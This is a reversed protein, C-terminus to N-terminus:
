ALAPVKPSPYRPLLTGTTRVRITKCYRLPYTEKTMFIERVLTLECYNIHTKPGSHFRFPVGVSGSRVRFPDRVSGSRVGFPGWVSGSRVRPRWFRRRYAILRQAKFNENECRNFATPPRFPRKAPRFVAFDAAPSRGDM